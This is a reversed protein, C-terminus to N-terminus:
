LFDYISFLPLYISLAVFGVILGVILLLAPEMLSTLVDIKHSIEDDLYEFSSELMKDLDGSEEGSSIMLLVIEPMYGTQSLAHALRHGHQIQDNVKRYANRIQTHTLTQTSLYLADTVPIGAGFSVYFTSVFDANQSFRILEGFVPVKLIFRDWLSKGAPSKFAYVLAMMSLVLAPLLLMWFQNVFTSINFMFQTIWPLPVGLKEYIDVFKPLVVTFLLVLVMTVIGIIIVPYVSASIIKMKLKEAKVLLDTLRAMTQDLEGSKEGAKAVNIYVDSFVDRHRALAQSFSMGGMINKRIDSVIRSLAPSNVYNEFYMLAETLPIGSRIMMGINRTFVIKENPTIGFIKELLIKFWSVKSRRLNLGGQVPRLKTVMLNQDRLLERAEKETAANILGDVRSHDPIKMAEYHFSSM